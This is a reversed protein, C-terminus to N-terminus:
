ISLGLDDAASRASAFLVDSLVPDEGWANLTVTTVHGDVRAQRISVQFDLITASNEFPYCVPCVLVRRCGLAALHRVTETIDPVRWEGHCLRVNEAPMGRDVLLMRIRQAFSNEQVDFSAHSREWEDPQGHLVLAVGTAAPEDRARWVQDAVHEALVESGWLPPAYAVRVGHAEPRMADVSAKARDTVYSEAVAATVIIMDSVGRDAAEVVARDLTDRGVCSVFRVREVSESLRAALRETTLQAQRAAPSKGGMARYRAKQAAYLFPTIGMTAEPLGAHALRDLEQTIAVPQYREPEICSLVLVTPKDTRNQVTDPLVPARRTSSLYPLLSSGLAYGGGVSALSLGVAAIIMDARRYVDIVEIIGWTGVVVGLIGLLFALPERARQAVLLGVVSAGVALGGLFVATWLAAM